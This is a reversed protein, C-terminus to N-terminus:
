VGIEKDTPNKIFRYVDLKKQEEDAIKKAKKMTRKLDDVGDRLAALRREGMERQEQDIEPHHM